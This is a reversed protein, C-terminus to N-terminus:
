FEFNKLNKALIKDKMLDELQDFEPQQVIQSFRGNELLIIEDCTEKLTSFIHSSILITKGADKVRKLIATFVISSQLDIGNYPEDFIFFNNKQLLLATLALKKKMGTSYTSVYQDLPLEFINKASLRDLIVKRADTLLYIYESGTMKSPAYFEAQLYGLYNKIPMKSGEITGAYKELGAIC